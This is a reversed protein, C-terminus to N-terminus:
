NVSTEALEVRRTFSVDISLFIIMQKANTTNLFIDSIDINHEAYSNGQDVNLYQEPDNDSMTTSYGSLKQRGSLM